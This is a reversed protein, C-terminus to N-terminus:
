NLVFTYVPLLEPDWKKQPIAEVLNLGAKEFLEIYHKYARNLQNDLERFQACNKPTGKSKNAVNDKIVIYGGEALAEKCRKLFTIADDDMLYMICWQCWICDYKADPVWEQAGITIGRFECMSSLKEKAQEVFSPIYEVLDIAKFVPVLVHEAVRGIGGAVDAARETKMGKKTLKKLVERSSIIDVANMKPYGGLMGAVSLDQKEWHKASVEYWDKSHSEFAEEPSMIEAVDEEPNM